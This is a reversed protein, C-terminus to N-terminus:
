RRLNSEQGPLAADDHEQQCSPAGARLGATSAPPQFMAEGWAAVDDILVMVDKTGRWV